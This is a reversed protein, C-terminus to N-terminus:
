SAMKGSSEQAGLLAVRIPALAEIRPQPAALWRVIRRWQSLQDWPNQTGAGRTAAYTTRAALAERNPLVRRVAYGLAEHLSHSWEIGPFVGVPLYSLSVDSLRQRRAITRLLPPCREQLAALAGDPIVDPYYRATLALPPWAWWFGGAAAAHDVLENWDADTMRAALLCIDHLQLLRVNRLVIAGAAHLLLHIMLAATSPYRNLGPQAHRPMVLATVDQRCVPLAEQIREHLEIKLDDDADEGLSARAPRPRPNQPVFVWHKWTAYSARFGQAELMRTTVDIDASRVLLDVDGMPREGARYLGISHLEAGKLAVAAIGAHRAGCDIRRLLEEIRAHRTATHARQDQLFERWQSPGHWRLAGAFLPSVGHMAVVARAIHWEFGSWDPATTGPRAVEHALTETTKRLAVQLVSVAPVDPLTERM